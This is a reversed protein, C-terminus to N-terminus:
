HESVEPPAPPMKMKKAKETSEPVPEASEEADGSPQEEETTTPEETSPQQPQEESINENEASAAKEADAEAKAKAEAEEKEKLEIEKKKKEWLSLANTMYHLVATLSEMVVSNEIISKRDLLGLLANIPYRSAKSEKAKGKRASRSKFGISVEHESLMFEMVKSHNQILSFLAHLCQDMITLPTMEASVSSGSRKQPTKGTSVPKARTSLQAFSREVSGIDSSGDQLISLLTSLIDARNQKNQCAHFLIDYLSQKASGSQAMFMLRLLAAVGAKDLIQVYQHPRSQKVAAGTDQNYLIRSNRDSRRLRYDKDEPEWGAHRLKFTQPFNFLPKKM